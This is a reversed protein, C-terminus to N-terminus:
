EKKQICQVSRGIAVRKFRNRGDTRLGNEIRHLRRASDLVTELTREFDYLSLGTLDM